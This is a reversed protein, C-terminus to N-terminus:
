YPPPTQWDPQWRGGIRHNIFPRGVIVERQYDWHPKGDSGIFCVGMNGTPTMHVAEASQCDVQRYSGPQGVVCYAVQWVPVDQGPAVATPQGCNIGTCNGAAQVPGSAFTGLGLTFGVAVLWSCTKM